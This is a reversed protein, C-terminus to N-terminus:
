HATVAWQVALVGYFIHPWRRLSLPPGQAQLWPASGQMTINRYTPQRRAGPGLSQLVLNQPHWGSRVTSLAASHRNSNLSIKLSWVCALLSVICLLCWRRGTFAISKFTPLPCIQFLTKAFGSFTIRLAKAQATNGGAELAPPSQRRYLRPSLSLLQLRRRQLGEARWLRWGGHSHILTDEQWFSLNIPHLELEEGARYTRTNGMM